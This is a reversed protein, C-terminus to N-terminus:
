KQMYIVEGSTHRLDGVVCQVIVRAVDEPALTQETPYQELTMIRRFMSTEVAGPAITHVRIGIPKGERAASLGLLNVAAKAAGYAAFGAFPDRASMSSINVVVGGGQRVFAPWAAKCLYFAASLNTDITSHWEDITMEAVSRVPALGACHIIADIRGHAALTQAVAREVANPDTVDTPLALGGGCLSCTEELDKETRALLALRYNRGALLQAAARGIGRGAGTILAVPEQM